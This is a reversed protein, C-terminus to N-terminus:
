DQRLRSRIGVSVLTLIGLSMLLLLDLQLPGIKGPVWQALSALFLLLAVSTALAIESGPKRKAFIGAFVMPAMLSTGKFSALALSVLQDSSIISFILAALGFTMIVIRTVILPPKKKLMVFSRFESGLAFLQSDATSTAAALLGVVVVAALIDP